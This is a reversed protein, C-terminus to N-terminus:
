LRWRRTSWILGLQDSGSWYAINFDTDALQDCTSPKKRLRNKKKKPGCLPQKSLSILVTTSVHHFLWLKNLYCCGPFQALRGINLVTDLINVFYWSYCVLYLPLSVLSSGEWHIMAQELQLAPQSNSLKAHTLHFLSAKSNLKPGPDLIKLMRSPSLQGPPPCSQDYLGVSM